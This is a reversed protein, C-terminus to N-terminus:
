GGLGARDARKYRKSFLWHLAEELRAIAMENERCKNREFEASQQSKIHEIVVEIVLENSTGNTGHDAVAGDQFELYLGTAPHEFTTLESCHTGMRALM